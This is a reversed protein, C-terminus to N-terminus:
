SPLYLSWWTQEQRPSHLSIQLYKQSEYTTVTCAYEAWVLESRTTLSSHSDNYWCCLRVWRAASLVSVVSCRSRVNLSWYDGARWGPVLVETIKYLQYVSLYLSLWKNTTLHCHYNLNLDYLKHLKIFKNNIQKLAINVMKTNAVEKHTQIALSQSLPMYSPQSPCDKNIWVTNCDVPTWVKIINFLFFTHTTLTHSIFLLIQIKERLVIFAKLRFMIKVYMNLKRKIRRWTALVEKCFLDFGLASKNKHFQFSM